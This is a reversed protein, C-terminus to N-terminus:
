YISGREYQVPWPATQAGLAKAAHLAWHPNHLLVRGLLVLDARGNAVIEEAHDPTSILGVAGTAIQAERRVAEAFPTQYGPHSPVRPVTNIGGSSCDVLDVDGRAKLRRALRISDELTWGGELWDTASIRVFLPLEAPWESRVADLIEELLRIRNEFPGGYADTRHNAVPSLFSHVLYGHAGHVEVIKFGAERARKAAGRFAEVVTAIDDSNM